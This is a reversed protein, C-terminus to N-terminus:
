HYTAIEKPDLRPSRAAVSQEPLVRGFAIMMVLRESDPIGGVRRIKREAGNSVALNLPCSGIELCHCAWLIGMSFLSADVYGQNRQGPGGWGTIEFTVVFLNPVAAEFGRSGGQLRLLEGIKEKDQYFHLRTSQRNCQSPASSAIAIVREIVSPALREDTYVRCSFRSQLIEQGNRTAGSGYINHIAKVGGDKDTVDPYRENAWVNLEELFPDAINRLTHFRLYERVSGVAMRVPLDHSPGDYQRLMKMLEHIKTKGFLVRPEKLALGKEITHASIIIRYFLRRRKEVFPSHHNYRLFQLMDSGYEFSIGLLKILKIGISKMKPILQM